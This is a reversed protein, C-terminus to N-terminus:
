CYWDYFFAQEGPTDGYDRYNQWIFSFTETTDAQGSSDAGPAQLPLGHRAAFASHDPRLSGRLMCPVGGAIPFWECAGRLYGEIVRGHECHIATLDLKEGDVRLLEAVRRHM